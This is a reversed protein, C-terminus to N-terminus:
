PFGHNCSGFNEPRKEGVSDQRLRIPWMQAHGLSNPPLPDDTLFRHTPFRPERATTLPVRLVRLSSAVFLGNCVSGRAARNQFRFDNAAARHVTANTPRIGCARIREVTRDRERQERRRRSGFRRSDTAWRSRLRRDHNGSGSMLPIM